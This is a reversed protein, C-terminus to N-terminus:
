RQRDANTKEGREATIKVLSFTNTTSKVYYSTKTKVKEKRRAAPRSAPRGSSKASSTTKPKDASKKAPASTAPEATLASVTPAHTIKLRRAPVSQAIEALYKGCVPSRAVERATPSANVSFLHSLFSVHHSRKDSSLPLAPYFLSGGTPLVAPM